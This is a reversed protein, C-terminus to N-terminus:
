PALFLSLILFDILNDMVQDVKIIIKPIIIKIAKGSSIKFKNEAVGFIFSIPIGIILIIEIEYKGTPNEITQAEIKWDRDLAPIAKNSGNKLCNIIKSGKIYKIPCFVPSISLIQYENM